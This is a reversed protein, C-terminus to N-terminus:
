KWHITNVVLHSHRFWKHENFWNKFTIQGFFTCHNAIFFFVLLLVVQASFIMSGLKQHNMQCEKTLESILKQVSSVHKRYKGSYWACNPAANHSPLAVFTLYDPRSRLRRWRFWVPCRPRGSRAWQLGWSNQFSYTLLLQPPVLYRRQSRWPYIPSM